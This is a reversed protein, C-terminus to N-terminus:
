DPLRRALDKLVDVMNGSSGHGNIRHRTDADLGHLKMLGQATTVMGSANAGEQAQKYATKLLL